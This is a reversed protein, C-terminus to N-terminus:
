VEAWDPRVRNTWTPTRKMKRIQQRIREILLPRAAACEKISLSQRLSHQNFRLPWPRWTLNVQYGRYEMEDCISTWHDLLFEGKDLFFLVHGKGLTFTLGTPIRKGNEIRRFLVSRIRPLERYEAVLMQDCVEAPDIGVNIRTM